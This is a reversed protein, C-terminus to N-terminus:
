GHNLRARSAATADACRSPPWWTSVPTTMRPTGASIVPSATSTSTIEPSCFLLKDVRSYEGFTKTPEATLVLTRITTAPTQREQALTTASMGIMGAIAVAAVICPHM